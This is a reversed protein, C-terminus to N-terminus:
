STLERYFNVLNESIAFINYNKQVNKIANEGIESRQGPNNLLKVIRSAFAHAESEIFINKKDEYDLGEAALPTAVICKGHYMSEIIKMRIGSGSFLPVVMVAKDKIFFLSSEVEGSFTINHGKIGSITKESANRGAVFFEADTVKDVVIPWVQEIFWNLGYMNPLWDLAGIFGVKNM